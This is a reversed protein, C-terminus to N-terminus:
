HFQRWRYGINISIEFRDRQLLDINSHNEAYDAAMSLTWQSTLARVAVIGLRWESDLRRTNGFLLKSFPQSDQEWTNSLTTQTDWDAFARSYRLTLHNRLTNGAPRGPRQQQGLTWRYDWHPHLQRFLSGRLQFSDILHSNNGHHIDARLAYGSWLKDLRETRSFELALTTEKNRYTNQTQLGFLNWQEIKHTQVRKLEGALLLQQQNYRQLTRYNRSGLDLLLSSCWPSPAQHPPQTDETTQTASNTTHSSNITSSKIAVSDLDTNNTAETPALCSYQPIQLQLRQTVFHDQAAISEPSLEIQIPLEGQLNIGIISSNVGLNANSDIGGGLQYLGLLSRQQPSPLLERTLTELVLAAAQPIKHTASDVDVGADVGADTPTTTLQTKPQEQLQAQLHKLETTAQARDGSDLYAIILDLRAGLHNPAQAVLRKLARIGTDIDQQERALQALWENYKPDAAAQSEQQLLWHYAAQRNGSELLMLLHESYAQATGPLAALVTALLLVRLHTYRKDPMSRTSANHHAAPIM